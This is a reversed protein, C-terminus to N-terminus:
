GGGKQLFSTDASDAGFKLDKAKSAQTPGRSAQDAERELRDRELQEKIAAREQESGLEKTCTFPDKKSKAKEEAIRADRQRRLENNNQEDAHKRLVARVPALGAPHSDSLDMADEGDVEVFGAALLFEQAGPVDFVKARLVTNSTKLRRFKTESPNDVINGLLKLLTVYCPEQKSWPSQAILQLSATIEKMGQESTPVQSSSYGENAAM